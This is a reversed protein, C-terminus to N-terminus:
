YCKFDHCQRLLSQVSQASFDLDKVYKDKRVNRYFAM